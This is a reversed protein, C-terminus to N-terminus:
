RNAEAVGPKKVVLLKNGRDDTVKVAVPRRAGAAFPASGDGRLAAHGRTCRLPGFARQLTM